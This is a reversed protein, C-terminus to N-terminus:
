GRHGEVQLREERRERGLRAHVAHEVLVAPDEVDALRPVQAVAHRAIEVAADVGVLRHRHQRLHRADFDRDGRRLGLRQQELEVQDLLVLRAVVDQELVVLAKREDVDRAVLVRADREIAARLFQGSPEEPGYGLVTAARSVSSSSCFSNRRRGQSSVNKALRERGQRCYWISRQVPGQTPRIVGSCYACSTASATLTSSPRLTSTMASRPRRMSSAADFSAYSCAARRRSWIWISFCIWAVCTIVRIDPCSMSATPMASSPPSNQTTPRTRAPRVCGPCSSSSGWPRGRRRPRFARPSGPATSGRARPAPRSRATADPRPRRCRELLRERLLRPVGHRNAAVHAAGARAPDLHRAVIRREAQLHARRAAGRDRVLELGDPALQVEALRRLADLAEVDAVRHAFRRDRGAHHEAGLARELAIVAAEVQAVM